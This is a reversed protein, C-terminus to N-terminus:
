PKNKKLRASAGALQGCAAKEGRGFRYRKTVSLGRRRLVAAFQRIADPDAPQFGASPNYASLNFFILARPWGDFLEALAEAQAPQDNVAKILTYEIMLRRGTKSLYYEAAALVSRLNFKKNIPMLESRLRDDPAHISVALNIQLKEKALRRIGDPLGATSISIHRAGINLGDPDNLKRVAALVAEYNLFPEGMGMFVINTLREKKEKLRRAWFLAQELMEEATLNRKFGMQGTACIRCALPCGIQASLCATRRGDQHSMLVTEVASGDLFTILAKATRQDPSASLHANIGLPCEVALRDRLIKPLVTAAQWDALLDRFIIKEAQRRRFSPEASLIKKIKQYDM